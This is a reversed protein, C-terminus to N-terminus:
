TRGPQSIGKFETRTEKMIVIRNDRILMPEVVANLAMAERPTAARMEDYITEILQTHRLRHFFSARGAARHLRPFHPAGILIKEIQLRIGIEKM